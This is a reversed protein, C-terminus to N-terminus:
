QPSRAATPVERIANAIIEPLREGLAREAPTAGERFYFRDRIGPFIKTHVLSGQQSLAPQLTDLTWYWPSLEGQLLIIRLRTQSAVPLYSPDEGPAPPKEYLNPYLLVAGALPRKRGEKMSWLRAGELLYKAGRGAALLWIQRKPNQLTAAKIIRYIDDADLSEASSPVAPVFHAGYLDPLWTELGKEALHRAAIHEAALVGYESPLWLILHEGKAAYRTVPAEADRLAINLTGPEGAAVLGSAALLLIALAIRRFAM